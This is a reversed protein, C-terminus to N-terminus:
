EIEMYTDEHCAKILLHAQKNANAPVYKFYEQVYSSMSWMFRQLALEGDSGGKKSYVKVSKFFLVKFSMGQPIRHEEFHSDHGDITFRLKTM